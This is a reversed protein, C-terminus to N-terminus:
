GPPDMGCIERKSATFESRCQCFCLVGVLHFELLGGDVLSSSTLSGNGIDVQVWLRRVM